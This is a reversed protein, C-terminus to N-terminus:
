RLNPPVTAEFVKRDLDAHGSGASATAAPAREVRLTAGALACLRIFAPSSGLETHDVLHRLEEDGAICNSYAAGFDAWQQESVEAECKANREMMAAAREADDKALADRVKESYLAAIKRMLAPQVGLEILGRSMPGILSRDAEAGDADPVVAAAYEEDSMSSLDAEAEGDAGAEAGEGDGGGDGRRGAAPAHAAAASSPESPAGQAEAPAPEAAPAAGGAAGGDEAAAMAPHRFPMGNM